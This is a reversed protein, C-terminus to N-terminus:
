LNMHQASLNLSAVDPLPALTSQWTDERALRGSVCPHVCTLRVVKVRVEANSPFDGGGNLTDVLEKVAKATGNCKWNGGIVYKRPM